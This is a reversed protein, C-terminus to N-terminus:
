VSVSSAGKNAVQEKKGITCANVDVESISISVLSIESVPLIKALKGFQKFSSCFTPSAKNSSPFNAVVGSALIMFNGLTEADTGAIANNLNTVYAQHHKSHHIEMTKADINPELANYAYALQPLQFSM